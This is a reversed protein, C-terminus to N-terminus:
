ILMDASMKFYVCNNCFHSSLDCGDIEVNTEFHCGHFECLADFLFRMVPVQGVDKCNDYRNVAEFSGVDSVDDATLLVFRCTMFEKCLVLSKPVRHPIGYRIDIGEDPPVGHMAGHSDTSDLRTYGGSNFM